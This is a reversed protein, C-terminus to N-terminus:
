LNLYAVVSGQRLIETLVLVVGNVIWVIRKFIQHRLTRPIDSRVMKYVQITWTAIVFWVMTGVQRYKPTNIGVVHM